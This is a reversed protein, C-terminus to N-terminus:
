GITGRRVGTSADQVPGQPPRQWSSGSFSAGVSSGPQQIHFTHLLEKVNSVSVRCTRIYM